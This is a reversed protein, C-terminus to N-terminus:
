ENDCGEIINLFKESVPVAMCEYMKDLVSFDDNTIYREEIGFLEFLSMFRSNMGSDKGTLSIIGYQKHFISSFIGCHFSNSIVYTANDILYLWEPITAFYKTRNDVVGNGTVYVIELKKEAAFDYVKQIDFHSKNSLMYLLIYKMEPKRIDNEMYLSRYMEKSLLLTPDCVWEVDNRGCDRCLAIGSKERVAVYYFTKLLPTIEKKYEDPLATIGWSAAYAIKKTITSGFDLMYAHIINKAQKFDWLLFNWVQDSGVIYIDAAPANTQLEFISNYEIKSIEIYKKRFVDFKRDNKAQEKLVAAFHKKLLLYNSLKWLNLAKLCRKFFPTKIIDKRYDYNILFVENGKDKLYRQLAYSQLLQGYNDQSWFFTLIGIKM